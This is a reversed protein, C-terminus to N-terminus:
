EKYKESLRIAESINVVQDKLNDTKLIFGNANFKNAMKFREESTFATTIFVPIDKNDKRIKELVELGSIGPMMIDLLVASPREKAYKELAEEGSSALVVEYNYQQLRIKLFEQFDPEDDVLLIKKKKM